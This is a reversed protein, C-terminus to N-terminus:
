TMREKSAALGQGAAYLHLREAILTAKGAMAWCADVRAAQEVEDLPYEHVLRNRLRVLAMWEEADDIGGLQAALNGLDRLSLGAADQGRWAALARLLRALVDQLQEVRKLLAVSAIRQHRTAGKLGAVTAPILPELDLAIEEIGARLAACRGLLQGIFAATETM